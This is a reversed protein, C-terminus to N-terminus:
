ITLYNSNIKDSIKDNNYKDIYKWIIGGIIGSFAGIVHGELSINKDKLTPLFGNSYYIFFDIKKTTM